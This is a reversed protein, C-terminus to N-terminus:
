GRVRCGPTPEGLHEVVYDRVDDRFARALMTKAIQPKTARGVRWGPRVCSPSWYGCIGGLCVLSCRIASCAVLGGCRCGFIM